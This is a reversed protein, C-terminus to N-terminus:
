LGLGKRVEDEAEPTIWYRYSRVGGSMQQESKLIQTSLGAGVLRKSIGATMGALQKNNELGIASRLAEDTMGSSGSELVLGLLKKQDSTASAVIEQVSSPPPPPRRETSRQEARGSQIRDALADIEDLTDVAVELGRYKVRYSM